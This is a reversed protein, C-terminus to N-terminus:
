VCDRCLGREPDALQSMRKVLFCSQCVFEGPQKPLVKRIGEGRDEDLEVDEEDDILEEDEDILREKLIVDLSAEVDDEDLEDDEDEEPEEESLSRLGTPTVVEEIETDDVIDEDTLDELDDDMDVIDEDTLDELDDDMDVIDEDTLDELDDDLESPKSGKNSKDKGNTRRAM